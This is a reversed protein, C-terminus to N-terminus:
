EGKNEEDPYLLKFADREKQTMGLYRRDLPIYIFKRVKPKYKPKLEGDDFERKDIKRRM